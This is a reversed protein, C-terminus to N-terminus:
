KFVFTTECGFKWKGNDYYYTTWREKGHYDEGCGKEGLVVDFDKIDPDITMENGITFYENNPKVKVEATHKDLIKYDFDDSLLLCPKEQWIVTKIRYYKDGAKYPDLCYHGFTITKNKNKSYPIVRSNIEKSNGIKYWAQGAMSIAAAVALSLIKKM